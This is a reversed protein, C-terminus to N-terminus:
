VFELFRSNSYACGFAIGEHLLMVYKVEGGEACINEM